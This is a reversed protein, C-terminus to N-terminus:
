SKKAGNKRKAPQSTENEGHRRATPPTTCAFDLLLTRGRRIHEDMKTRARAADGAVICEFLDRHERDNLGRNKPSLLLNSKAPRILRWLIELFAFLVRNGAIRAITLHFNEDAEIYDLRDDGVSLVAELAQRLPLLDEPRRTRAAEAAMETEVVLRADVLHFLNQEERSLVTEIMRGMQNLRGGAAASQVFVGQRPEIKVLGLTQAELLGDRVANRGVKLVRSLERIPPLRDGPGRGDRQIFAVLEDVLANKSVTANV